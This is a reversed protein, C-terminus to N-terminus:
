SHPPSPTDVVPDGQTWRQWSRGDFNVAPAEHDLDAPTLRISVIEGSNAPAVGLTIAIDRHAQFHGLLVFGEKALRSRSGGNSRVRKMPDEQQAVTAIVNRSVAHGETRRFLEDLRQQGSTTHLIPGGMIAIADDTPMRLLANPPLSEEDFVWRIARRGEENLTSKADRNMGKGVRDETVRVLGLSWTGAYDDATLVMAIHGRIEPPLMWGGSRQSFKCDVDRGAIQFDLDIGDALNLIRALWIEVLSGANTKETKSLQAWHFRGTHQGDYVQDYSLRIARGVAHALNERGGALRVLETEVATCDDDSITTVALQPQVDRADLRSLEQIKTRTRQVPTLGLDLVFNSSKM